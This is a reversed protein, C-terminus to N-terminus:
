VMAFIDCSLIIWNGSALTFRSSFNQSVSAPDNIITWIDLPTYINRKRRNFVDDIVDIVCAGVM